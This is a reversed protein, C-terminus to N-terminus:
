VLLYQASRAWSVTGKAGPVRATGRSLRRTDYKYYKYLLSVHYTESLTIPPSAGLLLVIYRHVLLHLCRHSSTDDEAEDEEEDKGDNGDGNVVRRGFVVLAFGKSSM